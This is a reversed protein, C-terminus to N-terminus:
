YAKNAKQFITIFSNGHFNIFKLIKRTKQSGRKGETEEMRQFFIFLRNGKENIRELLFNHSIRQFPNKFLCTLTFIKNSNELLINKLSIINKKFYALYYFM